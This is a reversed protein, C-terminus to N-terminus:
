RTEFAPDEGCRGRGEVAPEQAGAVAVGDVGLVEVWDRGRFAATVGMQTVVAAVGTRVTEKEAAVDVDAFAVGLYAAVYLAFVFDVGQEAVELCVTFDVAVYAGLPEFPLQRSVILDGM